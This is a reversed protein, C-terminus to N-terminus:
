SARLCCDFRRNGIKLGCVFQLSSSDNLVDVRDSGVPPLLCPAKTGHRGIWGRSDFQESARLICTKSASMSSELNLKTSSGVGLLLSYEAIVLVTPAIGTPWECTWLGVVYIHNECCYVWSLGELYILFWLSDDVIMNVAVVILLHFDHGEAFSGLFVRRFCNWVQSFILSSVSRSSRHKHM